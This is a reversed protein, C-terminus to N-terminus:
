LAELEAQLCDLEDRTKADAIQGQLMLAEYEEIAGVEMRSRLMRTLLAKRSTTELNDERLRM